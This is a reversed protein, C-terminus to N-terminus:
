EQMIEMTVPTDKRQNLHNPYREIASEQTAITPIGRDEVEMLHKYIKHVKKMHKMLNTEKSFKTKCTKCEYKLGEHVSSIHALLSYKETFNKQCLVCFFPEARDHGAEMHNLLEEKSTFNSDCIECKLIERWNSHISEIQLNLKPSTTNDSVNEMNHKNEIDCKNEHVANIHSALNSRQYLILSLKCNQSFINQLFM